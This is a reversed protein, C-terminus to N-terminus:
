YMGNQYDQEIWVDAESVITEDVAEGEVQELVIRAISPMQTRDQKYDDHWLKSRRLAKACHIFAEEVKVVVGVIPRKGNVVCHKLLDPNDTISAKGAVRLTDEFGPIFFLCAVNPNQAINVMTDLRNNGPRDPILFAGDDIIHVFGPPDGRPSVDARGAASATSLVLFPSLSIFRRSHKDLAPRTKQVALGAAFGMKDRLQSETLSMPPEKSSPHFPDRKAGGYTVEGFSSIAKLCAKTAWRLGGIRSQPPCPGRAQM